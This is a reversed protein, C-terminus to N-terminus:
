SGLRRGEYNFGRKGKGNLLIPFPATSNGGFVEM